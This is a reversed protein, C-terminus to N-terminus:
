AAAGSALLILSNMEQVHKPSGKLYKDVWETDSQLEAIKAKAGNMTTPNGGKTVDVFTDESTGAGIKRWFEMTAKYGISEQMGDIVAKAAEESGLARRAGQMATLRNFEANQGWERQLDARDTQLKAAREADRAAVADDQLKVVAKLVDPAADKPTGAKHLVGRLADTLSQDVDSGNARKVGSFDYEKAEKPMGLRQRVAAWGAEDTADKPLKLIQDAPVGFHKQLEASSKAAAEFAGRPDDLKWGKNQAHGLLLPDLGDHWPKQQQQQQQGGGQGGDGGGQNQDTM